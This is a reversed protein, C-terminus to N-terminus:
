AFVGQQHPKRYFRPKAQYPLYLPHGPEGSSTLSLCHLTHGAELLMRVVRSSRGRFAGHVGWACVIMDVKDAEELIAQDNDPGVPDEAVLMEEPETARFAFLNCVRLESFGMQRARRECREVTPDNTFEDATSPNLMLFMVAPGNGWRRVLRYRYKRCPSFDATTERLFDIQDM